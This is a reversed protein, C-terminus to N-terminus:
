NRSIAETYKAYRFASDRLLAGERYLEDLMNFLGTKDKKSLRLKKAIQEGSLLTFTGDEIKKLLTQKANM